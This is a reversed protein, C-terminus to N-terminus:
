PELCEGKGNLIDWILWTQAFERTKDTDFDILVYEPEEQIFDLIEDSM